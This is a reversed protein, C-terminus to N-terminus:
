RELEFDASLSKETDERVEIDYEKCLTEIQDIIDDLTVVVEKDNGNYYEVAM